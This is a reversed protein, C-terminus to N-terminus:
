EPQNALKNCQAFVIQRSLSGGKTLGWIIQASGTTEIM